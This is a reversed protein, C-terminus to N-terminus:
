GLCIRMTGGRGFSFFFFFIFFYFLVWLRHKTKPKGKTSPEGFLASARNVRRMPLELSALSSGSVSVPPLTFVHVSRRTSCFFFVWLPEFFIPISACIWLLWAFRVGVMEVMGLGVGGRKRVLSGAASM